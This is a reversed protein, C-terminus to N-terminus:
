EWCGVLVVRILIVLLKWIELDLLWNEVMRKSLKDVVNLVILWM